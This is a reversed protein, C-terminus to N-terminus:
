DWGKIERLKGDSLITANKLHNFHQAYEDGEKDVEGWGGLPTLHAASNPNKLFHDLM